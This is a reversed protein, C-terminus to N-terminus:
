NKIVIGFLVGLEILLIEIREKIYTIFKYM